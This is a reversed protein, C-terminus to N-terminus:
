KSPKRGKFTNGAASFSVNCLFNCGRASYGRTLASVCILCLQLHASVWCLGTQLLTQPGASLLLEQARGRVSRVACLGWALPRWHSQAPIQRHDTPPMRRVSGESGYRCHHSIRENCCKELWCYYSICHLSIQATAFLKIFAWWYM